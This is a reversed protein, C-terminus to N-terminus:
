NKNPVKGKKKGKELKSLYWKSHQHADEQEWRNDGKEGEKQRSERKVDESKQINSIRTNYIQLDEQVISHVYRDGKEHPTGDLQGFFSPKWM